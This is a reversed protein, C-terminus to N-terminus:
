TTAYEIRVKLIDGGNPTPATVKGPL